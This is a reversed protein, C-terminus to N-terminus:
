KKLEQYKRLDEANGEKEIKSLLHAREAKSRKDRISKLYDHALQEYDADEWFSPGIFLQKLEDDPLLDIVEKESAGNLVKDLVSKLESTRIEISNAMLIKCAGVDSSAIGLLEVELEKLSRKPGLKPEAESPVLPATSLFLEQRLGFKRAVEGMWLEKKIPDAIKSLTDRFNRVLAEKESVSFEAYGPLQAGSEKFKSGEEKHVKTDEHRRPLTNLDERKCKANQFKFDIFTQVGKFDLEGKKRIYSDPDEGDPLSLISVDLGVEFLIDIARETAKRGALDGDYALIVQPTYLKLLRAQGQTLSTGLSAVVNTIGSQYVTLLDMYGEVLVAGSRLDSRVDSFGYLLNGKKFIPSESSNIYKPESNDLVRTGFGVVKGWRDRIPFIVKRCFTDRFNRVLGLAELDEKNLGQKTKSLLLSDEAAYGLLFKNITTDSIGRGELWKRGPLGKDSLLVSHYLQAVEDTAKYLNLHEDEVLDLSIGSRDALFKVAEFYALNNYSMLFTIVNGSKGCGFCHYVGKEPSVYFSASKESHFPCVSKYSKGVRHLAIYSGIVEEIPNSALIQAIKDQSIRM